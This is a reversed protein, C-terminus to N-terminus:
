YDIGKIFDGPPVIQFNPNARVLAAAYDADIPVSHVGDASVVATGLVYHQMGVALGRMHDANETDRAIFDNTRQQRAADLAQDDAIESEFQRQNQEASAKIESNLLDFDITVSSLIASATATEKVIESVPVIVYTFYMGWQGTPRPPPSINLYALYTFPTSSGGYTGTGSVMATHPGTRAIKKVVFKPYISRGAQRASQAWSKEWADVPDGTYHLLVISKLGGDRLPGNPYIGTGNELMQGMISSPELASQTFNFNVVEKGTPGVAVASGGGGGRLTWDDPLGISGTQDPFEHKTLPEAPALPELKVPAGAGAAPRELTGLRQLMPGITQPFRATADYLVAGSADSGPAASIMSMGTVPRGNATDTFFLTLSQARADEVVRNVTPRAGLLQHIATLMAIAAAQASPQKDLSGTAIHGGDRSEIPTLTPAATALAGSPCTLGAIMGAVTLAVALATRSRSVM